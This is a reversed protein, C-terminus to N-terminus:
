RENSNSLQIEGSPLWLTVSTGKGAESDIEIGGGHQEMIQKVTPMGLGVGFSKTSFLPEFIKAKVSDPMGAGTDTVIIEIRDNDTQTKISLVSGNIVKDRQEAVLMAQCANEVVNIVARRLRDSDINSVLDGLSYDQELCIGVSINQEAVIMELWTDIRTENLELATIRTFDLLEDIIHDCRDINRDLMDLSKVVKEDVQDGLRKRVLYLAPRMAGLPNRIEHSVTATLQGLTALREKRILEGQMSRIKEEALKRDTIDQITGKLELCRGQADCIAEGIEQLYRMEGDPCVICYEVDFDEGNEAAQSFTQNFLVKDSPHILDVGHEVLSKYGAVVGESVGLIRAYGSSCSILRDHEVSWHWNGLSTLREANILADEALKQETIDTATGRFGNFEGASDFIPIGSVSLWRVSGDKHSRPQIFGRFPRHAELDAMHSNWLEDDINAPKVEYRSKGMFDSLLPQGSGSITSTLMTYCLNRDLEWYWDSTSESFDRFRKESESLESTRELIGAELQENAKWITEESRKHVEAEDHLYFAMDNFQRALMGIEDNSNIEIPEVLGDISEKHMHRTLRKLPQSISRTIFLGIIVSLLIIAVVYIVTFRISSQLQNQSNQSALQVSIRANEGLSYQLFYNQIEADFLRKTTLYSDSNISDNAALPSANNIRDIAEDEVVHLKKALDALTKFIPSLKIDSVEMAKQITPSLRPRYAYYRQQWKKDRTFSYNRVSQTQIENLYRIEHVLLEVRTSQYWDTIKAPFEQNFPKAILELPTYALYGALAALVSVSMFGSLLRTAINM